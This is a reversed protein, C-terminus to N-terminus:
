CCYSSVSFHVVSSYNYLPGDTHRYRHGRCSVQQGCEGEHHILTHMREAGVRDAARSPLTVQVPGDTHGWGLGITVCQCEGSGDVRGLFFPLLEMQTDTVADESEAWM